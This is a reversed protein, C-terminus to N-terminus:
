SKLAWSPYKHGVPLVRASPDGTTRPLSLHISTTPGCLNKGVVTLKKFFTNVKESRYPLPKTRLVRRRTATGSSSTSNQDLDTTTNGQQVEEDASEDSLMFDKTMLKRWKAKSSEPM